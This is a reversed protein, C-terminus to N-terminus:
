RMWGQQQLQQRPQRLPVLLLWGLQPVLLLWGLQALVEQQM